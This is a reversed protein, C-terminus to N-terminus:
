QLGWCCAIQQILLEDSISMSRSSEVSGSARLFKAVLRAPAKRRIGCPQSSQYSKRLLYSGDIPRQRSGGNDTDTRMNWPRRVRHRAEANVPLVRIRAAHTGLRNYVDNQPEHVGSLEVQLPRAGTSHVRQGHPQVRRRLQLQRQHVERRYVRCLLRFSNIM